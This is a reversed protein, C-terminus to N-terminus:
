CSADDEGQQLAQSGLLQNVFQQAGRGSMGGHRMAWANALKLLAEEEMPLHGVRELLTKVITHYLTRDPVDFNIQCGFRAALSLREELTDSRHVEGNFEMDQRDRWMERILHRRNSTACILMNEPTTELGGEIVAKLYKYEVENEEFSLDDMFLLFRYHRGRIQRIIDPLLHFQHKYVEILRLGQAGYEHVLARVATSKGTGADGYLLLNNGGRGQLFADMNERLQQKQLEYGVLHSLTYDGTHPIPILQAEGETEKVWAAPYMGWDGVGHQRYQQTLIAFWAQEDEEDALANCLSTLRTNVPSLPAHRPQHGPSFAMLPAFLLRQPDEMRSFDAYFLTRLIRLDHLAYQNITADGAERCEWALTFPNEHQLLYHAIYLQWLNGTLGWAQGFSLLAAVVEAPPTERGGLRQASAAVNAMQRLLHHRPPRFLVLQELGDAAVPLM